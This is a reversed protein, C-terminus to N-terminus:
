FSTIRFKVGDPCTIEQWYVMKKYYFNLTGHLFGEVQLGEFVDCLEALDRVDVSIM